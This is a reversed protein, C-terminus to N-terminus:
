GSVRGTGTKALDHVFDLDGELFDIEGLRELEVWRVEAFHGADIEGEVERVRLFVLEIPARGAYTHISRRLSEGVKGEVGLEERLERALASEPTEGAEVKGGPFEWKGAHDRGPARRCVLVRGDRVWVGAAVTIM